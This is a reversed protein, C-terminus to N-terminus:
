SRSSVTKIHTLQTTREVVRAELEANLQRLAEEAQKRQTVDQKIGVFHTIEGSTGRVPTITQEEIYITGDKRRNILEGHWVNGGLITAWLDKYFAKDHQSSNILDRQNRGKAEDSTYGTLTTFAPNVWEIIGKIDTIVIGNAASELAASKLRLDEEAM